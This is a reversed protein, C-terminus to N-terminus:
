QRRTPETDSGAGRSSATSEGVQRRAFAQWRNELESFGAIKYVSRLSDEVGKQQAGRVFKVFQEPTGQEVLFQTLSVSQAYYLSWADASPYDIAMLESLKFVRGDKLPGTLEATRSVQESLPEALVAMGEDAWRPIQQQTFLDALVVHTVEHPLIAAILQPHDARLNVRRASIRGAQIEMTSFGPSTEPQGTMRAFEGPTPFLFIECRPTWTGRTATSGWRKAQQARITEATKAAQEALAPDTHHITFNATERVQWVVPEQARLPAPSPPAENSASNSPTGPAPDAALDSGSDQREPQPPAEAPSPLGLPQEGTLPQGPEAVKTQAQPSRGMLRPFRSPPSDDPSSGRVVLRGQRSAGRGGRRAEAVRNQLYEGYWNGPTLRQISRVEQEIQDWDRDSRPRANIRQVVAVWRCYAWVSKRQPPLQSRAALAAYIRGAQEYKKTSFLGDAQALESQAGPAAPEPSLPSAAIPEATNTGPKATPGVSKTALAPGELAPVQGPEPLRAPEDSLSQDPTQTTRPLRTPEAVKPEERVARTIGRDRNPSPVTTRPAPILSPAPGPDPKTDPGAAPKPSPSTSTSSTSASPLDDGLIALNDRFVAADHAKGAAEAEILLNRYSQRLLRILEGRDAPSADPLAEELVVNAKQFDKHALHKKAEVLADDPRTGAFAPRHSFVPAALILAILFAHRMVDTDQPSITGLM